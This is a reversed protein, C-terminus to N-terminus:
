VTSLHNRFAAGSNKLGYLAQVILAIKGADQGFDPGLSVWMKEMCAIIYASMIDAARVQLGNLATMKLTIRVIECTAM